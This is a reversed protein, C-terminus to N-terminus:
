RGREKEKAREYVSILTKVGSTKVLWLIKFGKIAVLDKKFSKENLKKRIEQWAQSFLVAWNVGPVGAAVIFPNWIKLKDRGHDIRWSVIKFTKVLYPQFCNEDDM